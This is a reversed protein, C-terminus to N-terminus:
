ASSQVKYESLARERLWHCRANHEFKIMFRIIACIKLTGLSIFSRFDFHSRTRLSFM